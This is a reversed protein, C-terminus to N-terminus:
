IIKLYRLIAEIFYYDAYTVPVDVEVNVPFGGVSHKLIFNGNEGISALYNGSSLTALQREAVSLYITSQEDSVFTSLEILASCIIAGASADRYTDPIDPADFDWYPIKDESLNPHNIIFSAVKKAHDLYRKKRTERYMMTFGYLGWAQGRTWSSEDSYGQATVKKMVKGDQPNFDVVHYASYDSRYHHKMTSDAHGIAIHYFTSDGSFRTANILLELNLMNDINAPYTLYFRNSWDTADWCRVLGVSENYRTLLSKAANVIITQYTSDHTVKYANYVSSNIIWGLDHNATDFQLPVIENTYELAYSRLHEKGSWHYLYWLSGPYFGSTWSSADRTILKRDEYTKPFKGKPLSEAMYKYNKCASELTEILNERFETNEKVECSTLVISLVLFTLIQRVPM